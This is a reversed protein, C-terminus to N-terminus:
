INISVHDSCELAPRTFTEALDFGIADSRNGQKFVNKRLLVIGISKLLVRSIKEKSLGIKIENEYIDKIDNIDNLQISFQIWNFV